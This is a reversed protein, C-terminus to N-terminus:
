KKDEMKLVVVDKAELGLLTELARAINIRVAIDGAGQCVAVAGICQKGGGFAGEEGSYYITVRVDGAGAMESLAQSIRREEGTMTGRDGPLLLLAALAALLILMWKRDQIQLMKFPM